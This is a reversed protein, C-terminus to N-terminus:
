VEAISAGKMRCDRLMFLSMETHVKFLLANQTTIKSRSFQFCKKSDVNVHTTKNRYNVQNGFDTISRVSCVLRFHSIRTLVLCYDLIFKLNTMQQKEANLFYVFDFQRKKIEAISQDISNWGPECFLFKPIQM